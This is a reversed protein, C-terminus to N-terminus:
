NKIVRGICALFARTEPILLLESWWFRDLEESPYEYFLLDTHYGDGSVWYRDHRLDINGQPQVRSLYALDYGAAKLQRQRKKSLTPMWNEERFRRM